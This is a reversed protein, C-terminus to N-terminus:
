ERDTDPIFASGTNEDLIWDGNLSKERCSGWDAKSATFCNWVLVATGICPETRAYLLPIYWSPFEATENLSDTETSPCM